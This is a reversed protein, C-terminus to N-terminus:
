DFQRRRITLYYLWCRLTRIECQRTKASRLTCTDKNLAMLRAANDDKPVKLPNKLGRYHEETLVLMQFRDDFRTSASINIQAYYSSFFPM